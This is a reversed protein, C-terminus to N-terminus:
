RNFFYEFYEFKSGPKGILGKHIFHFNSINHWIFGWIKLSFSNSNWYKLAWWTFKASMHEYFELPLSRPRKRDTRGEWFLNQPQLSSLKKQELIAKDRDANRGLRNGSSDWKQCWITTSIKQRQHLIFYLIQAPRCLKIKRAFFLDIQMRATWFPSLGRVYFFRHM